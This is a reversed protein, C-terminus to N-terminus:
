VPEEMAKRYQEAFDKHLKDEFDGALEPDMTAKCYLFRDLNQIERKTQLDCNTTMRYEPEKWGKNFAKNCMRKIEKLNLTSFHEALIDVAHMIAHIFLKPESCLVKWLELIHPNSEVILSECNDNLPCGFFCKPPKQIHPEEKYVDVKLDKAHGLEYTYMRCVTTKLCDSGRMKVTKYFAMQHSTTLMSMAVDQTVLQETSYLVMFAIDANTASVKCEGDVICAWGYTCNFDFTHARMSRPAPAHPYGPVTEEFLKKVKDAHHDRRFTDLNLYVELNEMVRPELTSCM